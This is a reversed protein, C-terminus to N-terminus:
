PQGAPTHSGLGAVAGVIAPNLVAGMSFQVVLSPVPIIVTAGGITSVFFLGLYSYSAQEQFIKWYFVVVIALGFTLAITLIGVWFEWRKLASKLNVLKGSTDTDM